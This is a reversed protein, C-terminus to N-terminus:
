AMKLLKTRQNGISVYTSVVVLVALPAFAAGFTLELVRCAGTFMFVVALALAQLISMPTSSQSGFVWGLLELGYHVYYPMGDETSYSLDCFRASVGQCILRYPSLSLHIVDHDSLFRSSQTKDSGIHIYSSTVVGDVVLTGAETMPAYIGNRKVSKIRTVRSGKETTMQLVDGVKISEAPVPDARNQLFILHDATVELPAKSHKSYIQFFEAPKTPHHHGFAYVAEFKNNGTLIRDGIKLDKMMTPVVAPEDDMTSGHRPTAALVQITAVESFCDGLGGNNDDGDDKDDEPDNLLDCLSCTFDQIADLDCLPDVVDCADCILCLADFDDQDPLDQLGRRLSHPQSDVGRISAASVATVALGALAIIKAFIKM